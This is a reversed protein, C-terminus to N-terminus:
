PLDYILALVHGTGPAYLTTLTGNPYAHSLAGWEQLRPAAVVIRAPHADVEPVTELPVNEGPVDPLLYALTGFEWYLYPEGMFYVKGGEPLPHVQMYRAVETAIEATPNGYVRRPTYLVFYFILNFIAAAAVAAYVALRATTRYRGALDLLAEAGWAILLAVVPMLLVGRQSSPPNETLVWATILTSWFWLLTLGRSPWRWRLFCAVMGVLMLSGWVFDLLPADPHYWFTPDPVAHFGGLAKLAYSLFVILPKQGTLAVADAFLGSAFLSVQAYRSTLDDPHLLFWYILPACAVLWGVALTLLGRGQRALFRPERLWRWALFLGLMATVWRAGFYGYWGLGAVFGALGWGSLARADGQAERELARWLAWFALPALFADAINNIALRSYHIAYAWTAMVLASIWGVRAGGLARGLLATAAVAATGVLASALRASFITTGLLREFLGLVVFTMSPNGLWGTRFPSDLPPTIWAHGARAMEGEDGSFIPPVHELAVVRVLLALLLLALFAGLSRARRRTEDRLPWPFPPLLSVLFLGCALIWMLFIFTFDQGMAMRAHTFAVALSILLALGRLVTRRTPRPLRRAPRPRPAPHDHQWLARTLGLLGLTLLLGGDWPYRGGYLLYAGGLTLLLAILVM